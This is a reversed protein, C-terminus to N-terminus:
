SSLLNSYVAGTCTRQTNHALYIQTCLRTNCRHMDETNHALHLLVVRQGVKAFLLVRNAAEEPNPSPDIAMFGDEDVLTLGGAAIYCDGACVLSHLNFDLSLSHAPLFASVIHTHPCPMVAGALIVMIYLIHTHARCSLVLWYSWLICYTHTPVVHCCWGTHGYYLIHTHPCSRVAGALIVMVYLIHTHARWSLVLWYSWRYSWRLSVGECPIESAVGNLLSRGFKMCITHLQGTLCDVCCVWHRRPLRVVRRHDKCNVQQRSRHAVHPSHTLKLRHM